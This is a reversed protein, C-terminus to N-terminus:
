WAVPKMGATAVSDFSPKFGYVGCFSAPRLVSGATQTGLALDAMGCAVAAASGSSSGGPTHTSRHPNTTPGPSMLAFEATVTKGLVVAGAARLIAVAAADGRPRFGEYLRSGYATPLDATDFVDKVGLVIGRLPVPAGTDLAHAAARAAEADYVTWARVTAEHEDIHQLARELADEASGPRYTSPM